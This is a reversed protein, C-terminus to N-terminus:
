GITKFLNLCFDMQEQKQMQAIMKEVVVLENGEPDKADKIGLAGHVIRRIKDMEDVPRPIINKVGNTETFNASIIVGASLRM